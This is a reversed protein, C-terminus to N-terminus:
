KGFDIMREGFMSQESQEEPAKPIEAPGSATGEPMKGSTSASTDPPLSPPAQALKRRAMLQDIPTAGAGM